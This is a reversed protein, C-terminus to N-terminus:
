KLIRKHTEPLRLVAIFEDRLASLDKTPKGTVIKALAELAEYMETVADGYRQSDKTGELLHSLGKQFPILVNQYQPEALWRLSENVLKDDLLEAGKKFVTRRAM